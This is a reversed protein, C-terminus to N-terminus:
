VGRPPPLPARGRTATFLRVANLPELPAILTRRVHCLLVDDPPVILQSSSGSRAAEPQRGTLNEFWHSFREPDAFGLLSAIRRFSVDSRQVLLRVAELAQPHEHLATTSPRDAM